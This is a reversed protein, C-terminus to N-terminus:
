SEYEEAIIPLASILDIKPSGDKPILFISDHGYEDGNGPQQFYTDGIKILNEKEDEDIEDCEVDVEFGTAVIDFIDEAKKDSGSLALVKNLIEMITKEAKDTAKIFVETSSNTIVDIFSHYKIKYTLM